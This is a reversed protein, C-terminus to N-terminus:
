ESRCEERQEESRGRTGRRAGLWTLILRRAATIPRFLVRHGQIWWPTRRSQELEEPTLQDPRLRRKHKLYHYRDAAQLVPLIWRAPWRRAAHPDAVHWSIQFDILYPRGDDGVLINERKELDVYAARRAHIANLLERLRPFFADNLKTGKDLPHGEIYEHAFGTPGNRGLLRPIGPVDGLLEYLRTEHRVQWRGTWQMPLGLLSSTRYVKLVIRGAPGQYLGTAAFFDHKFTRLHAYRAGGIDIEAPLNERGLARLWVPPTRRRHPAANSAPAHANPITEIQGM